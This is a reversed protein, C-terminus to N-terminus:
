QSYPSFILMQFRALVELLSLHLISVSNDEKRNLATKSETYLRAGLTTVRFLQHDARISEHDIQGETKWREPFSNFLFCLIYIVIHVRLM